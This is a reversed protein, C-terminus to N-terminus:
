RLELGLPRQRLPASPGRWTRRLSAASRAATSRTWASRGGGAQLAHESRGEIRKLFGRFLADDFGRFAGNDAAWVVGRPPAVNGDHPTLLVGLNPHGLLRRVTKTAGSVLIM